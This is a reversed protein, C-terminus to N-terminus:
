MIELLLACSLSQLAVSIIALQSWIKGGTIGFQRFVRHHWHGWSYALFGGVLTGYFKGKPKQEGIWAMASAEEVSFGNEIYHHMTDGLFFNRLQDMEIFVIRDDFGGRCSM